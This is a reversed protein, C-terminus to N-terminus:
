KNGLAKNYLLYLLFQNQKLVAQLANNDNNDDDDNMVMVVCM